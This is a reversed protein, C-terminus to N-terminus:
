GTECQRASMPYKHLPAVQVLWQQRCCSLLLASPCMECGPQAPQVCACLAMQKEWCWLQAYTGFMLAIEHLGLHFPADKDFVQFPVVHPVAALAM